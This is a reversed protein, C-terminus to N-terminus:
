QLATRHTYKILAKCVATTLIGAVIAEPIGNIAIVSLIVGYLTSFAVNKAQAYSQGFFLYIFNMVLLTNTLSGAVGAVGLALVDSNNIKKM